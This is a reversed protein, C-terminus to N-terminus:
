KSPPGSFYSQAFKGDKAKIITKRNSFERLAEKGWFGRGSGSQGIGGFGVNFNMQLRQPGSNIALNGSSTENVFKDISEASTSYCYAILPKGTPIANVTAIAEDVSEVKIIPLVPGFIEQTMCSSNLPPQLLCTFPLTMKADDPVFAGEVPPVREADGELFKQKVAEYHRRGILMVHRREGLAEVAARLKAVFEDYISAHVLAYDHACCFQGTKTVKLEMIERIGSDLLPGLNEDFFVPSKGGLELTVPTLVQACRAAVSKAIEAGGTFLLHDAGEDILRECAERGGEEVWVLGKLYKDILRRFEAAVAPVLEPMKVAVKNGATIMGMMPILALTIPANWPVVAIGVGKPENVVTFEAEVGNKMADPCTDELVEPTMWEVALQQHFRCAGTIMRATGDFRHPVVRDKTQAESLADINENVLKVIQELAAQREEVTKLSASQSRLWAIPMPVDDSIRNMYSKGHQIFEKDGDWVRVTLELETASVLNREITVTKGKGMFDPIETKMRTPKEIWQNRWTPIPPKSGDESWHAVTAGQYPSPHWQGDLDARFLLHLKQAPIRHDLTFHEDEVRYCHFDPAKEAIDRAAEPVGMFELYPHWNERRYFAWSGTWSDLTLAM